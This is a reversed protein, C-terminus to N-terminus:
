GFAIPPFYRQWLLRADERSMPRLDQILRLGQEHVRQQYEIEAPTLVGPPRVVAAQALAEVAATLTKVAEELAALRESVPHYVQSM